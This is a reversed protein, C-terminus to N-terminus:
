RLCKVYDGSRATRRLILSALRRLGLDPHAPHRHLPNPLSVALLAGQRASLKSAPRKFHYQAAAEAGYIGPGWEVINLYIEMIRRKSLIADFYLALPAEIAKRIFSRGQWLFLNKVSQMTITSAGRTEEGALADDIVANLEGWDIGDHRCFQGDESMIVAYTLHPSIADLPVWQRDYSQGTVLDKLMLTSIPHVGPIAYVFTLGAPIAAVVIIAIVFRRLWKRLGASAQGRRRRTRIRFAAMRPMAERKSQSLSNKPKKWGVYLGIVARAVAPRLAKEQGQGRNGGDSAAM